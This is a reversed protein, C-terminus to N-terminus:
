KTLLNFISWDWTYELSWKGDDDKRLVTVYKVFIKLDHRYKQKEYPVVKVVEGEKWPKPLHKNASRKEPLSNVKLFKPFHTQNLIAKM